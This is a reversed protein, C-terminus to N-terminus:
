QKKFQPSKGKCIEETANSNSSLSRVKNGLKKFHESSLHMLFSSQEDTQKIIRNWHLCSCVHHYFMIKSLSIPRKKHLALPWNTNNGKKISGKKYQMKENQLFVNPMMGRTYLQILARDSLCLPSLFCSYSASNSLFELDAIWRSPLTLLHDHHFLFYM